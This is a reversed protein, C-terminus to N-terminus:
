TVEVGAPDREHNHRDTGIVAPKPELSNDAVRDAGHTVLHEVATRELEVGVVVSPRASLPTSMQPLPTPADIAAFLNM